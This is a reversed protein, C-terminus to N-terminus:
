KIKRLFADKFGFAKFKALISGYEDVTLPGVLVHHGKGNAMPVLTMPYTTAYKDILEGVREKDGLAGIQVYYCGSLLDKLSPVTYESLKDGPVAVPVVGIGVPKESAPEAVEEAVANEEVMVVPEDEVAPPAAVAEVEVTEEPVAEVPEIEEVPPNPEAPVLVIPQYAEEVPAEEEAPVEAEAPLEEAVPEATMEDAVPAEETVAEAVPEEEAVAEELPAEEAVAEEAPAEEEVAETELPAEEEVAEAELPAEEEVPEAVVEEEAVANEEAPAEEVVAEEPATEETAEDEAPVEELAAEETTAEEAPAAEEAAIEESSSEDVPETVEDASTEEAAGEPEAASEALVATGYVSDELSGERKTIKVQVNSNKKINLAQAAEPSLLIAVGESPDVAGLILVDVSTGTAPNTVNVSDGPLYGITRAFLGKPMAGEDAVLARGDLSPRAAAFLIGVTCITLVFSIIKKM